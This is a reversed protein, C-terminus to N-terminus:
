DTMLVGINSLIILGKRSCWGYSKESTRSSQPDDKYGEFISVETEPHRQGQENSFRHSVM